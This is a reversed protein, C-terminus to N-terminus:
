DFCGLMSPDVSRAAEPHYPVDMMYLIESYESLTQYGHAFGKPIYVAMPHAESLRVGCWQMYTNSDERLDLIVDYIAGKLCRVLKVESFPAQQYHLGRIQHRHTNTVLSIQSLTDVLGWESFQSQCFLRTFQGRQDTHPVSSILYAGLLPLSERKM